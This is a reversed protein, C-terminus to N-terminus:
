STSARNQALKRLGETMVPWHFKHRGLNVRFLEKEVGKLRECVHLHGDGGEAEAYDGSLLYERGGVKVLAGFSGRCMPWLDLNGEPFLQGFVKRFDAEQRAREASGQRYAVALGAVCAVVVVFIGLAVAQM